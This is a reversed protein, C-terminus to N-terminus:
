SSHEVPKTPAAGPKQKKAEHAKAILYQRIEDAGDRDLVDAFSAMGAEGLAGELLVAFWADDGLLPSYRLDPQNGLSVADYGHCVACYRAYKARGAEIRPASATLAPPDLVMPQAAPAPPLKAKGGLAFVLLRDLNPRRGDKDVMRCASGYVGGCGALVAVYQRGKISYTMPAALVGTQLWSSWLEKGDSARMAKFFGTGTGQWVLGGATALVGGNGFTDRPARWVERQRVPDWALLYGKAEAIPPTLSPDRTGLKTATNYGIPSKRYEPDSVFLGALEQTPIYVLGTKSDYAMPPWNHGGLSSPTAYFPKGTESYRALPNEVPRGTELDIKSAWNAPVYKEASILKGTARDLVYFFGNKPAQMLVKRKQGGIMLDALIIHQTATYDWEDGPVEQYHWVYEGTDPRVAVISSLYLNDGKGESRAGRSWPSGNGTGIYLLDLEPDYAFADWATGGGAKQKWWADGSWTKRAAEIARDSVEGDPAAPDGPVTYFRWLKRGTEADYAGVYGRVGLEAGGNGIIVKGKIIRPAGTITYPASADTTRVDWVPKGTKADIAILRGDLTGVYIRGKWAAVGRNVADCCAKVLQARPVEPDYTWLPKGTAADFAKVMSWATSVYLVGDVVLPTAEEGRSLDFDAYWALGVGGVNEENIQALPSFRQEDYTRGTMSWGTDNGADTAAGQGAMITRAQLSMAGLLALTSCALAMLGPRGVIPRRPMPRDPRSRTPM